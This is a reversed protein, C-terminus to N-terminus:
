VKKQRKEKRRQKVMLKFFRQLEDIEGSFGVIPPFDKPVEQALEPCFDEISVGCGHLDLLPYTARIIGFSGQKTNVRYYLLAAIIDEVDEGSNCDKAAWELIHDPLPVCEIVVDRFGVDTFLQHLAYLNAREELEAEERKMERFCLGHYFFYCFLPARDGEGVVYEWTIPNTESDKNRWGLAEASRYGDELLHQIWQENYISLSGGFYYEGDTMQQLELKVERLMKGIFPSLDFEELTGTADIDHCNELSWTGGCQACVVHPMPLSFSPAMGESGEHIAFVIKDAVRERIHEEFFAQFEEATMVSPMSNRDEDTFLERNLRVCQGRRDSYYRGLITVSLLNEPTKESIDGFHSRGHEYRSRMLAYFTAYTGLEAEIGEKTNYEM